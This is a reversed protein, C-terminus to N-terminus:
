ARMDDLNHLLERFAGQPKALLTDYTGEEAVAGAELVVVKDASKLMSARHAIMIVTCGQEALSRVSKQIDQEARQDLSSSHEDFLYVRARRLFARALAIRQAQGVSLHVSNPGAGVRTFFGDPLAEVFDLAEAMKAAERIEEQSAGPRSFAINEAITLDTFLAPRQDVVSLLTRYERLSFDRIDRSDLTIKGQWDEEARMILKSLTSKGVGSRGAICIIKGPELTLNIGQLVEKDPTASYAFHVNEFRLIPNRVQVAAVESSRAGSDPAREEKTALPIDNLFGKLRQSAGLSRSIDSYASGLQGFGLGMLGSYMAFSALQGGSMAGAAVLRGGYCVVALLSANLSFSLGGIFIGEALGASSSRSRLDSMASAFRNVERTENNFMRVTALYQVREGARAVAVRTDEKVEKAKRRSFRSFAFAGSGIMPLLSLSVMTLQPSIYCLMAMGGFASNCGRYLSAVNKCISKSLDEADQTLCTIVENADQEMPGFQLAARYLDVRLRQSIKTEASNLFFVRAISGMAGAAFVGMAAWAAKSVSLRGADADAAPKSVLDVMLGMIKPLALNTGSSVVLAVMAFVMDGAANERALKAVERMSWRAQITNAKESLKGSFEGANDGAAVISRSTSAGDENELIEAPGQEKSAETGKEEARRESISKAVANEDHGGVDAHEVLLPEEEATM